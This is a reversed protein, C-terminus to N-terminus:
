RLTMDNLTTSNDDLCNELLFADGSTGVYRLSKPVPRM